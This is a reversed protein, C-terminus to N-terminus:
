GGGGGAEGTAPAAQGGSNGSPIGVKMKKRNDAEKADDRCSSLTDVSKEGNYQM